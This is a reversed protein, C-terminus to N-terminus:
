LCIDHRKWAKAKQLVLSHLPTIRISHAPLLMFKIDKNSRLVM